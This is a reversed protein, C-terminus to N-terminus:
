IVEAKRLLNILDPLHKADITGFPGIVQGGAGFSWKEGSVTKFQTLKGNGPTNQTLPLIFRIMDDTFRWYKAGDKVVVYPVMKDTVGIFGRVSQGGLFTAKRKGVTGTKDKNRLTSGRKTRTDWGQARLEKENKIWIRVEQSVQFFGNLLKLPKHDPFSRINFRKIEPTVKGPMICEVDFTHYQPLYTMKILKIAQKLDLM